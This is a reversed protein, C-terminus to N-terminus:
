AWGACLSYGSTRGIVKGMCLVPERGSICINQGRPNRSILENGRYEKICARGEVLFIGVDGCRLKERKSVLVIDGSAYEPEMSDDDIQLAYDARRNEPTDPLSLTNEKKAESLRAIERELLYSVTERGYDDLARYKQIHEAEQQSIQWLGGAEQWLEKENLALVQALRGFIEKGPVCMGTEYAEVVSDAVKIREALQAQTLGNKQRAEKIRDKLAM